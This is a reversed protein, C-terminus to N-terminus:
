CVCLYSHHPHRNHHMRIQAYLASLSMSALVSMRLCLVAKTLRREVALM